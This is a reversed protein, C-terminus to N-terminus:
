RKDESFTANRLFGAPMQLATAGGVQRHAALLADLQPDRIMLPSGGDASVLAQPTGRTEPSASQQALTAENPQGPGIWVLGQWALLGVVAVSALGAVRRWWPDNAAEKFVKQGEARIPLPSVAVSEPTEEALRLRLHALFAPDHAQLPESSARMAQGVLHYTDWTDDVSVDTTFADLARALDDGELAGDMLASLRESNHQTHDSM